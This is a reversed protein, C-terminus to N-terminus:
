GIMTYMCMYHCASGLMVFIHFLDHSSFNKMVGKGMTFNMSYIVGGISYLIGGAFLMGFSFHPINRILQPLVMVCMWGMAIYIVSSFYKPCTIWFLKFLVSLAAAIWIALLLHKGTAGNLGIVCIPTYSGAILVSIMSHDLKRLIVNGRGSLNFGHFSASAGYLFIMSLMFIMLSILQPMGLNHGDAKIFLAPTMIIAAIMGIFHTLSSIPDKPKFVGSMETRREYIDYNAYQSNTYM